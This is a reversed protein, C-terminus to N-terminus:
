DGSRRLRAGPYPEWRLARGQEDLVILAKEGVAPAEASDFVVAGDVDVHRGDALEFVGRGTGVYRAALTALIRRESTM